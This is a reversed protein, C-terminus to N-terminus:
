APSQPSVQSVEICTVAHGSEGLTEAVIDEGTIGMDVNGAGVYKAIDAAPLFVLTVPM